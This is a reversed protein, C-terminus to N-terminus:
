KRPLEREQPGAQTAPKAPFPPPLEQDTTVTIRAFPVRTVVDLSILGILLTVYIVALLFYAIATSGGQRLHMFFVVVLCAKTLAIALAIVISFRGTPVHHMLYTLATLALLALWVGTYLLASPNHVPADAAADEAAM